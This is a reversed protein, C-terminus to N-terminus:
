RWVPQHHARCPRRKRPLLKPLTTGLPRDIHFLVQYTISYIGRFRFAALVYAVLVDGDVTLERKVAQPQLERDVEIVQKAIHAHKSNAFPIRVSRPSTM